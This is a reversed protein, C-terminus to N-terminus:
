VPDVPSAFSLTRAYAAVSYRESEDLEDSFDPHGEVGGTMLQAMDDASLQALSELDQNWAAPQAPLSAAQSGDGQGTEGHCDACNQNYLTQGQELEAPSVSLSYTYAVVDWRQSDTLGQSFGPMFKDLNGVTVIRYWDVPRAQRALDPSGIPAAPNPLNGAQPGDGLGSEGHCPLCKEAYIAEGQAPDPPTQPFAVEDAAPQEPAQTPPRYNPPPTIDEALSCGALLFVTLFASAIWLKRHFPM